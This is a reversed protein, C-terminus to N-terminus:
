WINEVSIGSKLDRGELREYISSSSNEEKFYAMINSEQKFVEM